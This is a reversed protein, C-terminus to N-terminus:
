PAASLREFLKVLEPRENFKISVEEKFILECEAKNLPGM